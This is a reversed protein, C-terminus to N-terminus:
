YAEGFAMLGAVLVVALMSLTSSASPLESTDFDERASGLGLLQLFIFGRATSRCGSTSREPHTAKKPPQQSPAAAAGLVLVSRGIRILRVHSTPSRVM